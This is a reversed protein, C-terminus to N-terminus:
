VFTVTGLVPLSGVPPQLPGVPVTLTFRSVGPVARIATELDSQYIEAASDGLPSALQGIVTALAAEIATQLAASGGVLNAITVAVPWPTPACVYVLATVPRLPFLTNAILLQDGTAAVDRTEATAVGNTGQPFGAHASEVGDLMAYVVVTGAGAGNGRVWARTVGPVGLTWEIYDSEAGGQPPARYRSLMRTRLSDDTEMDSGGTAPGSASAAGQVGAIPSALALPTGADMDGAAAAIQAAVPAIGTGAAPLTLDATTMYGTGDPRRVLTGAPILTGAFGTFAVFGTAATATNRLIGVLAAWAELYESSATFPTAQQAIADLFGYHLYALGAQVWSLLRLASFRLLGGIGLPSAQVDQLAQTRLQTLSPRSFPM